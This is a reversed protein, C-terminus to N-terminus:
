LCPKKSLIATTIRIGNKIKGNEDKLTGNGMGWEGDGMGQKLLM